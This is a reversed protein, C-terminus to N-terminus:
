RRLPQIFDFGRGVIRKRTDRTVNWLGRSM